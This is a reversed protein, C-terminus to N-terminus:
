CSGACSGAALYLNLTDMAILWLERRKRGVGGGFKEAVAGRKKTGIRPLSAPHLVAAIRRSVARLLKLTM